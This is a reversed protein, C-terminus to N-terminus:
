LSHLEKLRESLQKNDPQSFLRENLLRSVEDTISKLSKRESDSFSKMTSIFKDLEDTSDSNLNSHIDNLIVQEIETNEDSITM